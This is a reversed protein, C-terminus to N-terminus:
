SHSIRSMVENSLWHATLKLRASEDKSGNTSPERPKILSEADEGWDGGIYKVEEIPVRPLHASFFGPCDTGSTASSSGVLEM